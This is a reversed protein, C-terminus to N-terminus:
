GVDDALIYVVTPKKGFRAELAALKERVKLDDANWQEGFENEMRVFEADHIIEDAPLSLTGIALLLGGAMTQLAKNMM